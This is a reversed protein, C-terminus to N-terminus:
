IQRCTGRKVLQHKVKLVHLDEPNHKIRNMLMQYIIRGMYTTNIRMTTIPPLHQLNYDLVDGPAIISYDEPTDLGLEQLVQIVRLAIDDDLCFIATPSIEKLFLPQLKKRLEDLNDLDFRVFNERPVKIKSEEVAKRFGFCRDNLLIPLDPRECEIYLLNRHGLNILHMAGEYACQIDDVLVSYFKDQFNNNMVVIVPIDHDELASLLKEDGFHLSIVAEVGAIKVKEFIEEVTSNRHIPIMITTKGVKKMNEEIEEIIPRIFHWIFSWEYDISIFIGISDTKVPIDSTRRKRPQYQIEDAVKLVNERVEASIRGKGTFVFSATSISVGAKEAVDKLKPKTNEM